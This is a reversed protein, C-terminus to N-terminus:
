VKGEKLSAILNQVRCSECTDFRCRACVNAEIRTVISAPTQFLRKAQEVIQEALTESRSPKSM